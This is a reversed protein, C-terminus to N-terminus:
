HISFYIFGGDGVFKNSFLWKFGFGRLVMKTSLYM